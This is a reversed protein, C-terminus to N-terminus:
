KVTERAVGAQTWVVAEGPIVVLRVLPGAGIPTAPGFTGGPPITLAEVAGTSSTWGLVFTGAADGGVSPEGRDDLASVLTPPGWTGGAPRRSAYTPTGSPQSEAFVAIANGADDIATAVGAANASLQTPSSWVGSESRTAVM